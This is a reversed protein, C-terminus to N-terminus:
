PGRRWGLNRIAATIDKGIHRARVSNGRVLGWHDQRHAKGDISDTTAIILLRGGRIDEDKRRRLRDVLVAVVVFVLGVRGGGPASHTHASPCGRSGGSRRVGRVAWLRGSRRPGAVILVVGAKEILKM